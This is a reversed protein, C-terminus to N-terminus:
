LAAICCVHAMCYEHKYQKAYAPARRFIDDISSAGGGEAGGTMCGRWCSACTPQVLLALLNHENLKNVLILLHKYLKV